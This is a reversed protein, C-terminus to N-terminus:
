ARRNSASRWNAWFIPWAACRVTVWDNEPAAKRLAISAASSAGRALSRSAVASPATGSIGDCGGTDLRIHIALNMACLVFPNGNQAFAVVFSWGNSMFM